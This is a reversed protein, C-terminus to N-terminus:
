FPQVTYTSGSYKAVDTIRVNGLNGVPAVTGANIYGLTLKQVANLDTVNTPTIFDRTISNLTVQRRVGNIFIYIVGNQKQLSFHTIKERAATKNFGILSSQSTNTTATLNNSYPTTGFRCLMGNNLDNLKSLWMSTVWETDSIVDGMYRMSWEITWDMIQFDYPRPLTVTFVNTKNSIKATAKGNILISNDVTVAPASVVANNGSTDKLQAMDLLLIINGNKPPIETSLALMTEIM